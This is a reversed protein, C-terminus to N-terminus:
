QKWKKETAIQVSRTSAFNAGWTLFHYYARQLRCPAHPPLSFSVLWNLHPNGNCDARLTHLCLEHNSDRSYYAATAIQVSRTSVFRYQHGSGSIGSTNCDARLTHLCLPQKLLIATWVVNCDARLTHLCLPQKLLIATWVVNCDARLTHLCLWTTLPNKLNKKNCDARLTHLCLSPPLSHPRLAATAIQVSRTSAFVRFMLDTLVWILTAIQVSRTSAFGEAAPAEGCRGGRQLRCPAHPPLSPHPRRRSRDASTAIQM